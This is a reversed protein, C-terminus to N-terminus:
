RRLGSRSSLLWERYSIVQALLEAVTECGMKELVKGRRAEVTKYSVDLEAALVKYPAGRVMGELVERQGPNLTLLRSATREHKRKEVLRQADFHIASQIAEIMLQESGPKELFDFAGLKMTRVVVPVDAHATFVIIPMGLGQEPCRRLLETGSLGPMRLDTLICGPGDPPHSEFFAQVSPFGVHPIQITAALLAVTRRILADDDVQYIIPGSM